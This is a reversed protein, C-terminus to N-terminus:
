RIWDGGCGVSTLLQWNTDRSDIKSGFWVAKPYKGGEKGACFRTATSICRKAGVVTLSCKRDFSPFDTYVVKTIQEALLACLIHNRDTNNDGTWAAQNTCATVAAPYPNRFDASASNTWTTMAVFIAVCSFLSKM